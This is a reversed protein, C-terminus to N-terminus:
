SHASLDVDEEEQLYETINNDEVLRYASIRQTSGAINTHPIRCHEVVGADILRALITRTKILGWNLIQALERTRLAGGSEKDEPQRKDAERLAQILKSEAIKPVSM